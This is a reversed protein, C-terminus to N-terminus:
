QNFKLLTLTIIENKKNKLHETIVNKKKCYYKLLSYLYEYLFNCIVINFAQAKSQHM